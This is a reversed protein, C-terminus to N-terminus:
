GSLVQPKWFDIFIYLLSEIYGTECMCEVALSHIFYMSLM